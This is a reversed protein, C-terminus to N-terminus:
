PLFAHGNPVAVPVRDAPAKRRAKNDSMVVTVSKHTHGTRRQEFPIVTQAIQQAMTANSKLMKHTGEPVLPM